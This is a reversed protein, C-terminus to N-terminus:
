YTDLVSSVEGLDKVLYTYKHDQDILKHHQEIENIVYISTGLIMFISILRNFGIYKVLSGRVAKYQKLIIEQDEDDNDEKSDLTSSSEMYVHTQACTRSKGLTHVDKEWGLDLYSFLDAENDENQLFSLLQEAQRGKRKYYKENFGSFTAVIKQYKRYLFNIYLNVLILVIATLAGEYIETGQYQGSEVEFIYELGDELKHQM